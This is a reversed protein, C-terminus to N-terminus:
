GRPTFFLKVEAQRRKKLGPLIKGKSYIWRMWQKTIEEKYTPNLAGTSPLLQPISILRQKLTSTEFAYQGCNYIFSILASYQNNTKLFPSMNKYLYKLLTHVNKEVFSKEAEITTPQSPINGILRRGYGITLYGAPCEYPTASFGEFSCIFDTTKNILDKDDILLYLAKRKRQAM